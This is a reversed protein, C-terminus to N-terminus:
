ATHGFAIAGMAALLVSLMFAIVANALAAWARPRARSRMLYYPMAIASMLIMSINLLPTRRFGIEEADIRYWFYILFAMGLILWMELTRASEVSMEWMPHAGSVFSAIALALLVKQKRQRFAQAPASAPLGSDIADVQTGLGVTAPAAAGADRPAIAARASQVDAPAVGSLLLLKEFYGNQELERNDAYTLCILMNVLILQPDSPPRPESLADVWAWLRDALAELNVAQAGHWHGRLQAIADLTLAEQPWQIKEIWRLMYQAYAIDTATSNM